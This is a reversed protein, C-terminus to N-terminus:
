GEEGRMIRQARRGREVFADWQDRNAELWAASEHDPEDPHPARGEVVDLWYGLQGTGITNVVEALDDLVREDDVGLAVLTARAATCREAEADLLARAEITASRDGAQLREVLAAAPQRLQVLPALDLARTDITMTM